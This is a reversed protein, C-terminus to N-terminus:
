KWEYNYVKVFVLPLPKFNQWFVVCGWSFEGSRFGMGFFCRANVKTVKNGKFLFLWIRTGSNNSTILFLLVTQSICHDWLFSAFLQFGFFQAVVIWSCLEVVFLLAAVCFCGDFCLCVPIMTEMVFNAVPPKTKSTVNSDKTEWFFVCIQTTQADHSM